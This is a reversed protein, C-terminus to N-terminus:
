PVNLDPFENKVAAKWTAWMEDLTIEGNLYANEPDNL